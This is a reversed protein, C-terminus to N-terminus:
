CVFGGSMTVATKIQQDIPSQIWQNWWYFNQRNMIYSFDSILKKTEASLQHFRDLLALENQSYPKLPKGKRTSISKCLYKAERDVEFPAPHCTQQFNEGTYYLFPSNETFWKKFAAYCRIGNLSYQSIGPIFRLLKNAFAVDEKQRSLFKQAIMYLCNIERSEFFAWVLDSYYEDNKYRKFCLEVLIPLITNEKYKTVLYIAATDVIQDYQDCLGDDQFGTIIIWKLAPYSVQKRHPCSKVPGNKDSANILFDDYAKTQLSKKLAIRDIIDLANQNRGNLEDALGLKKIEPVLIFLSAFQLDEDNLLKLIGAKDKRIEELVYDKLARNGKQHRINDLINTSNLNIYKM